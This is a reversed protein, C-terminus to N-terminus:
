SEVGALSKCRAVLEISAAQSCSAVNYREYPTEGDVTASCLGCNVGECGWYTTMPKRADKEIREWSDPQEHTLWEPRLRKDDQGDKAWAFGGAIRAIEWAKGDEGYLTQGTEIPKGDKAILPPRRVKTYPGVVLGSMVDDLIANGARDFWIRSLVHRDGAKDAYEDGPRVLEGDEFEPWKYGEPTDLLQQEVVADAVAQRTEEDVLSGIRSFAERMCQGSSMDRFKGASWSVGMIDEFVEDVGVIVDKGELRGVIGDIVKSM